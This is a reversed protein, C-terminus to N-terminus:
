TSPTLLGELYSIAAAETTFTQHKEYDGINMGNIAETLAMVKGEIKTTDYEISNSKTKHTRTVKTWKVRPLFEVKWSHTGNKVMPIIHGYGFEPATDSVNKTIENGSQAKTNGFLKAEFEDDEDAITVAINGKVFRTESEGLVDDCFLEGEAVEESYDDDILRGFKPVSGGTGLTKYKKTSPDIENYLGHKLGIGAM